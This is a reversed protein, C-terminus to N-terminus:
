TKNLFNCFKCVNEQCKLINELLKKWLWNAIKMLNHSASARPNNKALNSKPYLNQVEMM